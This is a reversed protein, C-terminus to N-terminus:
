KNSKKTNIYRMADNILKEDIIGEERVHEPEPLVGHHREYEIANKLIIKAEDIASKVRKQAINTQEAIEKVVEKKLSGDKEFSNKDQAFEIYLDFVRKQDISNLLGYLKGKWDKFEFADAHNEVAETGKTEKSHVPEEMRM